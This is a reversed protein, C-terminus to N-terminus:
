ASVLGPVGVMLAALVEGVEIVEAVWVSVTLAAVVVVATEEDAGVETKPWVTM